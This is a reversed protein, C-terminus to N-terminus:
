QDDAITMGCLEIAVVEDPDIIREFFFGTECHSVDADHRASGGMNAGQTVTSGDAMRFVVTGIDFYQNGIAVSEESARGSEERTSPMVPSAAYKITFAIPSVTVSEVVADLGNLDFAQGAPFARTSDEYNLEFKLNWEGELKRTDQETEGIFVLDRLNVRASRGVLNGEGSFEMQEVMQIAADSPDADYFYSSGRMGNFIDLGINTDQTRFMCPLLEQSSGDRAIPQGVEFPEGDDRVVSFVIALHSADGIVADASVTIGNSTAVADVPHGIKDAVETKAPPGNFIDDFAQALTVFGGTAYAIGGGAVLVCVVAVAAAISRFSRAQRRRSAGPRGAVAVYNQSSGLPNQARSEGVVQQEGAAQQARSEGVVQQGPQGAGQVGDLSQAAALLQDVMDAKETDTFRLKDLTDTYKSVM